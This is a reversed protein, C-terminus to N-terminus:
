TLVLIFPVPAINITGLIINESMESMGTFNMMVHLDRYEAETVLRGGVRDQATMVNNFDGLICWPGQM